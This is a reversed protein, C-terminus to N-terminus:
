SGALYAKLAETVIAQLSTRRRLALLKVEDHLDLRVRACLMRTAAEDQSNQRLPPSTREPAVPHPKTPAKTLEAPAAAPQRKPAPM